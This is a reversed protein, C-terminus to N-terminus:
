RARLQELLEDGLVDAKWRRMGEVDLLEDLRQPGSLGIELLVANSLLTGKPIGIRDAARNRVRKLQDVLAEIEPPPRSPGRRVNRPYGVVEAEPLDAVARLRSLLEKGRQKAIRAPFGRVDTLDSLRRPREGVAEILPRDGVVRFPARDMEQAIEDRWALAERIAHVHRPPLDRAEKIRVVPDEEEEDPPDGLDSVEELAEFEERAWELRGREGLDSALMDSLRELYRTDDAAYKLMDAELPRAAWDARQYKKSLKVGLRSELLASLGLKTEGLLSAQIQTDVLGRLRIGLDRSLLRLDFDAGHMVVEVEPHELPGRILDTPDFALPDVIYTRDGVTVQMLCLRDSYRHFGAAECDLAIRDAQALDSELGSAESISQVHIHSM